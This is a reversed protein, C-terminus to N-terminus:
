RLPGIEAHFISVIIDKDRVDDVVNLATLKLTTRGLTDMFTRHTTIESSLVPVATEYKVNSLDHDAVDM